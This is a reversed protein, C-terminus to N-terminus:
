LGYWCLQFKNNLLAVITSKCARLDLQSSTALSFNGNKLCNSTDHFNHPLSLLDMSALNKLTLDDDQLFDYVDIAAPIPPHFIYM